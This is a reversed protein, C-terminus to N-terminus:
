WRIVKSTAFMLFILFSVKECIRIVEAVDDFVSLDLRIDERYDLAPIVVPFTFCPAVPDADLANLLAVFDFPICFPFIKRLDVQYDTMKMDPDSGPDPDTGPDPKTGPDVIVGDRAEEVTGTMIEIYIQTNRDSDTETELSPKIQTQYSSKMDQYLDTLSSDSLRKGTVPAFVSPISAALKSYDLVENHKRYNLIDTGSLASSKSAYVPVNTAYTCNEGADIRWLSFTDVKKEEGTQLDYVAVYKFSSQVGSSGFSFFRGDPTLWYFEVYSDYLVAVPVSGPITGFFCTGNFVSAQIYGHPYAFLSNTNTYSSEALIHYYGDAGQMRDYSTFGYDGPLYVSPDVGSIEGNFLRSVTASLATFVGSGLIFSKIRSFGPKEPVPNKPDRDFPPQSASWHEMNDYVFWTNVGKLKVDVDPVTITGDAIGSVFADLSVQTGDSLTVTGLGPSGAMLTDHLTGMFSQFTLENSRYDAVVDAAGGAILGDLMLEWLLIFIEASAEADVPVASAEAPLPYLPLIGIVLAFTSLICVAKKKWASIAFKRLMSQKIEMKM